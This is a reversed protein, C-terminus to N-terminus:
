SFEPAAEARTPAVDTAQMSASADVLVVLTRGKILAARARPDGLALVLRSPGREVAVIDLKDLDRFTVREVAIDDLEGGLVLHLLQQSSQDSM